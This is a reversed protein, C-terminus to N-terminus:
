VKNSEREREREREKKKKKLKLKDLANVKKQDWSGIIKKKISTAKRLHFTRKLRVITQNLITEEKSISNSKNIIEENQCEKFELNGSRLLERPTRSCCRLTKNHSIVIYFRWIWM